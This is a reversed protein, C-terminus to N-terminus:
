GGNQTRRIGRPDSQRELLHLRAEIKVQEGEVAGLRDDIESLDHRRELEPAIPRAFRRLLRLLWDDTM